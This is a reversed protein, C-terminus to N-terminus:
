KDKRFQNLFRLDNKYLERIDNIQYKIMAIRELGIGAAFGNMDNTYGAKKLVKKHLMGSGLIEIWKGKYLVDVEASPETFPFYSPRLRIEVETELVYSLFSKLTWILNPFNVYGVSVFDVQTFQHSHTQDDEDNRYVKGIAFQSFAQNKYKELMKASIGTNHTRLLLNENIYLSDQMERAPHDKEINLREFNYEDSVIESDFYEFYGNELFWERIRNAVLTIPHLSSNNEVPQNIDIWENEIKDKVKQLEIRKLVKEFEIEAKEKLSKIKKGIEAKKDASATKLDKTLSFIEGEPGFFKNKAIKYDEFTKIKNFDM